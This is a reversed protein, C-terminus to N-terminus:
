SISTKSPYLRLSRLLIWMNRKDLPHISAKRLALGDEPGLTMDSWQINRSETDGLPAEATELEFIHPMPRGEKLDERGKTTVILPLCHTPSLFGLYTPNLIPIGVGGVCEPPCPNM